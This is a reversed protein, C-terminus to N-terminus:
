GRRLKDLVRELQGRPIPVLHTEHQRHVAEVRQQLDSAMEEIKSQLEDVVEQLRELEDSLEFIRGVGALNIGLDGTLRQILKLREVDQDSYLRTNGRTRKPHILRKREYIRLTQPHVGALRAAVSIIYVPEDKM